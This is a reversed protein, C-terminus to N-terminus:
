GREAGWDWMAEKAEALAPLHKHLTVPIGLRDQAVPALLGHLRSSTTRLESPFFGAKNLLEVLKAPVEAWMRPLGDLAQLLEIGLVYHSESEVAMLAYAFSPREGPQAVAGPGIFLDVEATRSDRPLSTLRDLESTRIRSEIRIPEPVPVQRLEDAWDQATDSPQAVRVLVEREAHEHLLAPDDEFRMAVGTLQDLALTLKEVEAQELFWPRFGPRYSRFLPWANRGRYRLGLARIIDRDKDDLMARDEFSAMLQPIELVQDASDTDEDAAELAWFGYLAADGLYASVAFHQGNAGMVSVYGVEATGPFQVGFIDAEWMWAWPALKKIRDAAAYLRRWAEIDTDLDQQGQSSM